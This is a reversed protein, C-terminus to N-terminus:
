GSILLEKPVSDYLLYTIGSSVMQFFSRPIDVSTRWVLINQGGSVVKVKGDDNSSVVIATSSHKRFWYGELITKWAQLGRSVVALFFIFVWTGFYAAPTSPTWATSFIPDM